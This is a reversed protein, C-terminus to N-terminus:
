TNSFSLDDVCATRIQNHKVEAMVVQDVKERHWYDRERIQEEHGVENAYFHDEPEDENQSQKHELEQERGQDTPESRFSSRESVM